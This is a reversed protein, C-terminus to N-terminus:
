IFDTWSNLTSLTRWSEEDITPGWRGSLYDTLILRSEIANLVDM